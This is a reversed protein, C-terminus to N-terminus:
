ELEACSQQITRKKIKGKLERLVKIQEDALNSNGIITFDAVKLRITQWGKRLWFLDLQALIAVKDGNRPSKASIEPPVSCHIAGTEDQLDFYYWGSKDRHDHAKRVTGELYFIKDTKDRLAEFILYNIREIVHRIPLKHPKEM